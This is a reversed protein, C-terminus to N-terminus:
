LKRETQGVLGNARRQTAPAGAAGAMAKMGAAQGTADVVHRTSEVWEPNQAFLEFARRLSRADLREFMPALRRMDDELRQSLEDSGEPREESRGVPVPPLRRGLEPARETAWSQVLFFLLHLTSVRGMALTLALSTGQACAAHWCGAPIYLVDGPRLLYEGFRSPDTVDPRELRIWPLQLRDRDPPFVVNFPPDVVEPAHSVTWRKEGSVQLIWVPHADFHLGYGRQDPSLYANVHPVAASCFSSRFGDLLPRVPGEPDLVSACITFGLRYLKEVQAPEVVIEQNWGSATRASAKLHRCRHIERQFLGELDLLGQFRGRDECPLYVSRREWYESLFRHRDFDGLWQDLGIPTPTKHM